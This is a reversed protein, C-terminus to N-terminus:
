RPVLFTLDSFDQRVWLGVVPGTKQRGAVLPFILVEAM